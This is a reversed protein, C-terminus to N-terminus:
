YNAISPITVPANNWRLLRNIIVAAEARTLQKAPQLTSKEEVGGYGLEAIYLNLYNLAYSPIADKDKYLTLDFVKDTSAGLISLAKSVAIIFDIKPIPANALEPNSSFALDIIGSTVAENVVKRAWDPETPNDFGLGTASETLRPPLTTILEITDDQITKLEDGEFVMMEISYLGRSLPQAYDDKGDWVITYSGRYHKKHSLLRRVAVGNSDRVVMEVSYPLGEKGEVTYFVPAQSHQLIRQIYAASVVIKAADFRTVLQKPNFQAGNNAPEMVNYATVALIDNLAWHNLVDQLMMERTVISYIQEPVRLFSKRTDQGLDNNIVLVEPVRPQPDWLLFNEFRQEFGFAAIIDEGIKVDFRTLFDPTLEFKFGLGGLPLAPRLGSFEGKLGATLFMYAWNEFNIIDYSLGTYYTVFTTIDKRSNERVTPTIGVAAEVALRNLIYEGYRIGAEGGTKLAVDRDFKRYALYPALSHRFVDTEAVTIGSIGLLLLAAITIVHKTM